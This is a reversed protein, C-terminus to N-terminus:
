GAVEAVSISTRNRAKTPESAAAYTAEDQGEECEQRCFAVRGIIGPASGVLYAVCRVATDPLGPGNEGFKIFDCSKAFRM